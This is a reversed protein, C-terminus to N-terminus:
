NTVWLIICETWYKEYESMREKLLKEYEEDPLEGFEDYIEDEVDDQLDDRDTYLREDNPGKCDLVEGKEVSVDTCCTWSYDYSSAEEGAFVLLPLDQNESILKKLNETNHITTCLRDLRMNKREGKVGDNKSRM